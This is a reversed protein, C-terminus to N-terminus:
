NGSSLFPKTRSWWCPRGSTVHLGAHAETFAIENEVSLKPQRALFNIWQCPLALTNSGTEHLFERKQSWEEQVSRKWERPWCRHLTISFLLRKCFLLTRSEWSKNPVGVVGGNWQKPDGFMAASVDNLLAKHSSLACCYHSIPWIRIILYIFLM